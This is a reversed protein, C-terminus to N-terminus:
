AHAYVHRENLAREYVALTAQATRTWSMDRVIGCAADALRARLSPDALLRALADALAGADRPPVIL